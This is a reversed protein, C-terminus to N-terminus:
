QNGIPLKPTEKSEIQMPKKDKEDYFSAISLLKKLLETM